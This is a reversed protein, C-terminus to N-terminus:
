NSVSKLLEDWVEGIQVWTKPVQISQRSIKEHKEQDLLLKLGLRTYEIVWAHLDHPKYKTTMVGTEWNTIFEPNAGIDSTLVPCGSAQAQLLLNSCIEPYTNPLVMCWAKRLLEALQTPPIPAQIRAGKSAMHRLFSDHEPRNPKGHLSQNSFIRFDLGPLHRRLNDYLAPVPLMGKVPASAMIWLNPDRDEYEGPYYLSTDVGNPILSFKNPDLSYFNSYTDRCYESLAVIRDMRKYTADDLYSLQVVDHLWWINKAGISKSYDVFDAPIVNRNFVAVDWKPIAANPEVYHVGDVIETKGYESFVYVEHGKSALYKPVLTLSTLIGGTPRSNIEKPNHNDTADSFLINM